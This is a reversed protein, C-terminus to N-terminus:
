QIKVVTKADQWLEELRYYDRQAPAFVHIILDGYDLLMWGSEATGERGVRKTGAEGLAEEVGEAIAKLQRESEGNCILFYDTFVSVEHVDLLAIQTAKKGEVADLAIHAIDLAGAPAAKPAPKWAEQARTKSSVSRITRPM